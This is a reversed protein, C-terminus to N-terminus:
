RGQDGTGGHCARFRSCDWWATKLALLRAAAGRLEFAAQQAKSLFDLTMQKSEKKSLNRLM